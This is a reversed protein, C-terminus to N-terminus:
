NNYHQIAHLVIQMCFVADFQMKRRHSQTKDYCIMIQAGDGPMMAVSVYGTSEPDGGLGDVWAQSFHYRQDSYLKNHQAAVNFMRWCQTSLATCTTKWDTFGLRLGERGGAWILLSLAQVTLLKPDM